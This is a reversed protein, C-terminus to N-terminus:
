ISPRVGAAIGIVDSGSVGVERETKKTRRDKQRGENSRDQTTGYRTRTSHQAMCYTLLILPETEFVHFEMLGAVKLPAMSTITM